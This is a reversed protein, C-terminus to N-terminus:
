SVSTPHGRLTNHRATQTLLIRRIWDIRIYLGLRIERALALSLCFLFKNIKKLKKIIASQGQTTTYTEEVYHLCFHFHGILKLRGIRLGQQVEDMPEHPCRGARSGLLVLDF